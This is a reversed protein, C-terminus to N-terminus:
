RKHVYERKKKKRTRDTHIETHKHRRLASGEVAEVLGRHLHVDWRTKIFSPDFALTLGSYVAKMGGARARVHLLSLFEVILSVFVHRETENTLTM